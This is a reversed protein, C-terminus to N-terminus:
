VSVRTNQTRHETNQQQEATFLTPIDLWKRILELQQDKSLSNLTEWYSDTAANTTSGHHDTSAISM